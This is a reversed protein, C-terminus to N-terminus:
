FTYMNSWFPPWQMQSGVNTQNRACKLATEDCLTIVRNEDVKYRLTDSGPSFYAFLKIEKSCCLFQSEGETSESTIKVEALSTINGDNYTQRDTQRDTEKNRM